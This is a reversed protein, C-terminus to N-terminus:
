WTPPSTVLPVDWTCQVARAGGAPQHGDRTWHVGRVHVHTGGPPQHGCSTTALAATATVPRSFSGFSTNSNATATAAGSSLSPGSGSLGEAVGTPPPILLSNGFAQKLGDLRSSGSAASSVAAAAATTATSPAGKHQGHDDRGVSLQEQQRTNGEGTGEGLPVKEHQLRGHTRNHEEEEQQNLENLYQQQDKGAAVVTSSNTEDDQHEAPSILQDNPM